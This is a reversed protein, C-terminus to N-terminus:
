ICFYCNLLLRCRARNISICSVCSTSSNISISIGIFDGVCAEGLLRERSVPNFYVKGQLDVDSNVRQDVSSVVKGQKKRWTLIM